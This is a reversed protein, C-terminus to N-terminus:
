EACVPHHQGVVALKNVLVVGAAGELSAERTENM